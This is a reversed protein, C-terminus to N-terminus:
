VADRRRSALDIVNDGTHTAAKAAGWLTFSPDRYRNRLRKQQENIDLYGETVTVSSHGLAAQVDRIDANAAIMANGMTRRLMHLGQGQAPAKGMRRLIGKMIYQFTSAKKHPLLPWYGGDRARLNSRGAGRMRAPVLYMDPTLPGYGKEYWELYRRIEALAFANLEIRMRRGRQKQRKFDILQTALNVDGVRLERMESERMGVFLGLAVLMRDRPHRLATELVAEAESEDFSIEDFRKERGVYVNKLHVAVDRHMNNLVLFKSFNRLHGKDQNMAAEGRPRATKPSRLHTGVLGKSLELLTRDIHMPQLEDVYRPLAGEQRLELMRGAVRRYSRQTAETHKRVDYSDLWLEIAKVLEM